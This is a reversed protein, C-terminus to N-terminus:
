SVLYRSGDLRQFRAFAGQTTEFTIKEKMFIFINLNLSFM